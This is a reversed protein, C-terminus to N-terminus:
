YTRRNMEVFESATMGTPECHQPPEIETEIFIRFRELLDDESHHEPGVKQIFEAACERCVYRMDISIDCMVNGCGNRDCALVGMDGGRQSLSALEPAKSRPITLM